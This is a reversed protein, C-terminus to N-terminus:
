TTQLEAWDYIMRATNLLANSDGAADARERGAMPEKRDM